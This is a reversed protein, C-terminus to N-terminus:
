RVFDAGYKIKDPVVYPPLQVEDWIKEGLKVLDYSMLNRM